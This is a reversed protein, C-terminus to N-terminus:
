SCGCLRWLLPKKIALYGLGGGVLCFRARDYSHPAVVDVLLRLDLPFSIQINYYTTDYLM